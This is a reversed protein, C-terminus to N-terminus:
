AENSKVSAIDEFVAWHDEGDIVRHYTYGGTCPATQHAIAGELYMFVSARSLFVGDLPVLDVGKGWFGYSKGTLIHATLVHEAGTADLLARADRIQNESPRWRDRLDRELDTMSPASM